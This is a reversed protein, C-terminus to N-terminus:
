KVHELRIIKDSCWTAFNEDHTIMLIACTPLFSLLLQMVHLSTLNDLASTPEDALILKPKMLLARLISARQLQGGSLEFPKKGLLEYALGVKKCFEVVGQMDCVDEIQNLLSYSPHFSTYPDQFIQSFRGSNIKGSLPKLNKSILEFLTSKGIGSEGVLTAIEGVKLDLNFNKYLLKDKTYGFTLECIELANSECM